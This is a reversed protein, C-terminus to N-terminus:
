AGATSVSMMVPTWHEDILRRDADFCAFAAVSRDAEPLACFDVGDGKLKDIDHAILNSPRYQNWFAGEGYTADVVVASPNVHLGFVDAIMEANNSWEKAALILDGM